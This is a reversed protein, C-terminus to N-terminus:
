LLIRFQLSSFFGFKHPSYKQEPSLINKSKLNTPGELRTADAGLEFQYAKGESEGAWSFRDMETKKNEALTFCDKLDSYKEVIFVKVILLITLISHIIM